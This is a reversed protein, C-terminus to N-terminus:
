MSPLMRPGDVASQALDYARVPTIVAFMRRNPIAAPYPPAGRLRTTVPGRVRSQRPAMASRQSHGGLGALAPRGADVDRRPASGHIAGRHLPQAAGRVSRLLRAHEGDRHAGRVAGATEVHDGRVIRGAHRM